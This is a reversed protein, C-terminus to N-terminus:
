KEIQITVVIPYINTSRVEIMKQLLMEVLSVKEEFSRKVFPNDALLIDVVIEYGPGNREIQQRRNVTIQRIMDRIIGYRTLLENYCFLKIDAPTVIRDCTAIYYRSLSAQASEETIEDSGMVPNAIQHTQSSNLGTPVIFSCDANLSSNIGAGATTLYGVEVSGDKTQLLKTDRLLIYIGPIQRLQDKKAIDVLRSLIEQLAQMTKDGSIGKLNQFAYYDSHYRAIVANLLKVLRGQNFRDAAVRRIEILSNGYLQEESPRIAHLFQQNVQEDNKDYGGVRIVPTQSSLTTNHLEANVLIVPNLILNNKDFKFSDNIGSFEFILDFTDTEVNTFQSQKHPRIVFIRVNQRAFLDLCTASAEFTQSRNYIITDLGFCDSLPLESYDWPKAIPVQQRNLTINVDQFNQNKIAFAFGSLDNTPTSFNMTVKWRRGDIRVISIDKINLLRTKLLPIFKYDTGNLTFSSSSNLELESIPDLLATSIVATAPVAHGIEYPTLLQAYEELVEDKMAELDSISENVQYALATIMLKLIPDNELGELKDNDDSQQWINIAERLLEEARQRTEFITQKM